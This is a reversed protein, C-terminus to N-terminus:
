CKAHDMNRVWAETLDLDIKFKVATAIIGQVKLAPYPGNPAPSRALDHIHDSTSGLIVTTTYM